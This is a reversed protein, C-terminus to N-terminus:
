GSLWLGLDSPKNFVLLFVFFNLILHFLSSSFSSSFLPLLLLVVVQCQGQQVSRDEQRSARRAERVLSNHTNLLLDILTRLCSGPGHRCPTLFEGSSEATLEKECLNVDDVGLDTTIYVCLCPLFSMFVLLRAPCM